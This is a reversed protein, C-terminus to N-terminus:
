HAPTQAVPSRHQSSQDTQHTPPLSAQKPESASLGLDVPLCPRNHGPGRDETRKGPNNQSGSPRPREGSERHYSAYLVEAMRGYPPHIIEQPDPMDYSYAVGLTSLGEEQGPSVM